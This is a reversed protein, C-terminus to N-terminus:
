QQNNDSDSETILFQRNNGKAISLFIVVSAVLQFAIAGGIFHENISLTNSSDVNMLDRISYTTLLVFFAISTPIDIFHFTKDFEDHIIHIQNRLQDDSVLMKRSQAHNKVLRDIILFTLSLGFVCLLHLVYYETFMTFFAGIYFVTIPIYLIIVIVIYRNEEFAKTWSKDRSMGTSLLIINFVGFVILAAAEWYRWHNQPYLCSLLAAIFISLILVSCNIKVFNNQIYTSLNKFMSNNKPSKLEEYYHRRM